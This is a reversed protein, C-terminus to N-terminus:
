RQLRVGIRASFEDFESGPTDSTFSSYEVDGTIATFRNVWYQLGLGTELTMDREDNTDLELGAFADMSWRDNIQRAYDLRAVYDLNGSDNAVISTSTATGLTLTVLSDREPSWILSGNVTLGSLDELAADDFTETLYGIAIEGQLKEGFDLELGARLELIDSDRQNGNRDLALDYDRVSYGGQVFPVVAPSVEYGVRLSMSYLDNNLDEQSQSIGNGLDADDFVTRDISGRLALRLKRDGRALEVAGGYAQILPTDIAGPALTNDTFEQTSVFYNASGTLTFGDILDLRLATDASLAPEDVIDDNFFSRYSGFFNTQWQHRSWDSTFSADIDTQSFTGAEGDVNQSLNSSYGVSQELVIFSNTTGILIGDAAFPDDEEPRDIGSQVPDVPQNSRATSPADGPTVGVPVASSVREARTNSVVREVAVDEPFVPDAAGTGQQDADVGDRIEFGDFSSTAPVSQAYVPEGALGLGIALIAGPIWVREFWNSNAM